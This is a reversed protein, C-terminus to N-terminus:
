VVIDVLMRPGDSPVVEQEFSLVDTPANKKRYQKNLQQIFPDDCFLISLEVDQNIDEGRLINGALRTLVDRRYLRKRTSENSIRLTVSM